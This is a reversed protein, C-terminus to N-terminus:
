CVAIAVWIPVCLVTLWGAILVAVELAQPLLGAHPGALLLVVFFAVVAVAGLSAFYAGITLVLRLAPRHLWDGARM